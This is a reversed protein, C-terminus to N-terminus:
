AVSVFQNKRLFEMADLVLVADPSGLEDKWGRITEEIASAFLKGSCGLEVV